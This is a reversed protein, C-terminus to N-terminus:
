SAVYCRNGGERRALALLDSAQQLLQRGATATKPYCAGGASWTAAPTRATPLGTLACLEDCLRGIIGLLYEIEADILLVSFAADPLAAVVDTARTRRLMAQFIHQTSLRSADPAPLDPGICVVSICYQLRQAKQIEFDILYRFLKEDTIRRSEGTSQPTGHNAPDKM